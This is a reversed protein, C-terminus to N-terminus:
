DSSQADLWEKLEKTVQDTEAGVKERQVKQIATRLRDDLTTPTDGDISVGADEKLQEAFDEVKTPDLTQYKSDRTGFLFRELPNKFPESCAELNKLVRWEKDDLVGNKGKERLWVDPNESAELAAIAKRTDPGFDADIKTMCLAAQVARADSISMNCEDERCKMIPKREKDTSERSMKLQDANDLNIPLGERYFFKTIYRPFEVSITQSETEILDSGDIEVYSRIVYEASSSSAVIIQFRDAENPGIVHSVEVDVRYQEERPELIVDYIASPSLLLFKMSSPTNRIKFGEQSLILEWGSTPYRPISDYVIQEKYKNGLKDTYQISGKIDDSPIVVEGKIKINESLINLSIHDEIVGSWKYLEKQDPLFRRIPGELYNLDVDLAPGWGINVIRLMMDGKLSPLLQFYLEPTLDPVSKIIEIIVKTVIATQNGVNKIKYDIVPWIDYSMVGGYKQSDDTFDSEISYLPHSKKKGKQRKQVQTDIVRIDPGDQSKQTPESLGTYFINTVFGVFGLVLAVLALTFLRDIILKIIDASLQRTLVPFLNKKLIQRLILFFVGALFGALMLPTSVNTAIELIKGM